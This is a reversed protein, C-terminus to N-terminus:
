LALLLALLLIVLLGGVGIVAWIWRPAAGRPHARYANSDGPTVRYKSRSRSTPLTDEALFGLGSTDSLPAAIPL